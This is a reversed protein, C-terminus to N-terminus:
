PISRQGASASTAREFRAPRMLSLGAFAPRKLRRPRSGNLRCHGSLTWGSSFHPRRLHRAPRARARGRRSRPPRVDPRDDRALHGDAAVACLALHRGCHLVDCLHAQPRLPAPVRHRGGCRRSGTGSGSTTSTSIAVVPCRPVPAAHRPPRAPCGLDRPCPQSPARPAAVPSDKPVGEAKQALRDALWERDTVYRHDGRGDPGPLELLCGFARAADADEDTLAFCERREEAQRGQWDYEDGRPIEPLEAYAAAVTEGREGLRRRLRHRRRHDRRGRAAAPHWLSPGKRPRVAPPRPLRGHDPRDAPRAAAGTRPHTPSSRPAVSLAIPSM